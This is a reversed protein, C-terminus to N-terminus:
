DVATPIEEMSSVEALEPQEAVFDPLEDEVLRIRPNLYGVITSLTIFLGMTSFIVGIGRGAGVGTFRGITGALAGDVAMLPEFVNDALPGALIYALPNAITSILRRTAFVRGQVDPAVKAQWIAQSSGSAIPLFLFFAFTAAGILIPNARLGALSVFIGFIFMSGMLSLIKRKSGGWASMVLSGVLMGLGGVSLISGLVEATTFSLILPTFLASHFGLSFNIFAFLILMGMLGPRQKLYSWGYGAEQMLSGKGAEGERTVKPRPIRVFFLTVVAFIYTAFDILIVGQVQITVVLFGALIPSIVHSLAGSLQGLGAARGYHKKPVLLTTAAMYAPQQFTSFFSNVANALYIHWVELRGSTLLLWIALTSLGSGTDSILMVWRRDWRDVLAGAITSFLLSPLIAALLGLSLQTVSGTMQYIYVGLAFGTLHSGLMSLLQGFWIIAFTRIGGATIEQKSATTNENM